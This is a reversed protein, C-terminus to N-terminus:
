APKPGQAGSPYSPAGRFSARFSPKECGAFFQILIQM